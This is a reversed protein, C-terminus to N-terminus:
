PVTGTAKESTVKIADRAEWQDDLATKQGDFHVLHLGLYSKIIVARQWKDGDAENKALVHAGRPIESFKANRIADSKVWARDGDVFTIHLKGEKAKDVEGRHWNGDDGRADVFRGLQDDAKQPAPGLEMDPDFGNFTAFDAKQREVFAMRRETYHALERLTIRRDGDADLLASGSFGRILSDTYTWAGTSGNHAAVSPLCAYAISTHRSRAEVILGGSCCCDAALLVRAGKFHKEIGDFVEKMYFFSDPHDDNCDYNVFYYTSRGKEIDRSGHGQFYFILTDDHQTKHLLATFSERIRAITGDKDKLFVVHDGPVGRSKLEAILALDERGDKPMNLTKDYKYVTCSVAFVWTRRPQWVWHPDEGRVQGRVLLLVGWAVVLGARARIRM